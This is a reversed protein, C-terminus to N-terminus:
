QVMGLKLNKHLVEIKKLNNQMKIDDISSVTPVRM